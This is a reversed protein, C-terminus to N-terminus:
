EEGLIREFDKMWATKDFGEPKIIKGDDNKLAVGNPFKQMNNDFVANLLQQAREEGVCTNLKNACVIMLDCIEKLDNWTKKDELKFSPEEIWEEYEEMILDNCLELARESDDPFKVEGAKMFEAQRKFITM